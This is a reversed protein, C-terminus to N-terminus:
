LHAEADALPTAPVFPKTFHLARQLDDILDNVDEIGVSLRIVRENIGARERLEPNMSAHSMTCPHEILSEVGGLSEALAFIRTAGLVQKVEDYGGDVEFSVVGGFGYQQRRALAYHPYSTLGPYYVRRVNPHLELFEAVAHANREHEKMRPVLTKIGRLVLWCDFPSAGQGLANSLFQLREALEATKAIVAGGVVDSHGNLYKTTSHVVIDAGLEIPRQNIPSLFTNDVITLAGIQHALGALARIDVVNLLPNSPTEVWIAKTNPKIAAEVAALDSQDVYTVELGFQQGYIRLLRETGGYCDHTCIIHDGRHFFHLVVTIAAMGTAVASAAYGGELAALNEELAKRTPNATRSYDYGKTQGVDEFRFTSTQYIPTIVSNYTSDKEVGVHVTQTQLRM